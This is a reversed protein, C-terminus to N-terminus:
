CCNGACAGFGVVDIGSLRLHNNAFVVDSQISESPRFTQVDREYREVLRHIAPLSEPISARLQPVFSLASLRRSLRPGSPLLKASARLLAM